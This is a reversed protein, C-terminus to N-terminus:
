LPPRPPQGAHGTDEAIIDEDLMPHHPADFGGEEVERARQPPVHASEPSGVTVSGDPPLPGPQANPQGDPPLSGPQANPQGDPPLPSAPSAAPAGGGTEPVGRPQNAPANVQQQYGHEATLSSVGGDQNDVTPQRNDPLVITGDVESRPPEAYSRGAEDNPYGGFGKTRLDEAGDQRMIEWAERARYPTAVTLLVSGGKIRSQYYAAEDQPIGLGALHTALTEFASGIRDVPTRGKATHQDGTAPRLYTPDFGASKLDSIAREAQEQDAFLGAVSRTRDRENDRM